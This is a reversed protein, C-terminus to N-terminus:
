EPLSSNEGIIPIIHRSFFENIHEAKQIEGKRRLYEVIFYVIFFPLLFLLFRLFLPIDDKSLVVILYICVLFWALSFVLSIVIMCINQLLKPLREFWSIEEMGRLYVLFPFQGESSMTYSMTDYTSENIWKGAVRWKVQNGFNEYAKLYNNNQSRFIEQYIQKQRSFGYRYGSNKMWFRNIIELDNSNNSSFNLLGNHAKILEYTLLDAGKLNGSRILNCLRTYDVNPHSCVDDDNPVRGPREISDSLETPRQGTIGWELLYLANNEDIRNFFQVWRFERLFLLHEPFDSVGPLLVPIVPINTEVCQSMLAKLEWAQWNGLGQLGIFIAASKVIPIAQQIEDQFSRGPAIQEDDLWPNLGRQKLENAIAKIFSKDKSNHALFVDFRRQAGTM